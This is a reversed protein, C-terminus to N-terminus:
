QECEDKGTFNKVFTKTIDGFRDAFPASPTAPQRV